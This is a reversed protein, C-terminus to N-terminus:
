RKLDLSCKAFVTERDFVTASLSFIDKEKTTVNIEVTIENNMVPHIVNLFKTNRVADIRLACDLFEEALDKIIQVICAGPTVPNGAFHAEYVPHMANLTLRLSCGNGTAQKEKIVFLKNEFM